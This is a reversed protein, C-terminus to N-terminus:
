RQIGRDLAASQMAKKIRTSFYPRDSWPLYPDEQDFQTVFSSQLRGREDAAHRFQEALNSAPHDVSSIPKSIAYRVTGDASAIVTTGAWQEVGGLDEKAPEVLQTFQAVLDMQLQGHASVRFAPHFGQLDIGRPWDPHFGLAPANQAAYERLSWALEDSIEKVKWPRGRAGKKENETNGRSRSYVFPALALPGLLATPFPPLDSAEFVLSKEALSDVRDPYIGRVRFAEIMAGRRGDRDEPALEFDATVMARLYDGFTIDVPPLYEFARICMTLISQAVSSAEAAIRNVLDPHLDGEPLKGTGGTAIRILDATRRQYTTFFAEFVAAVLISGRAHPELVTEYRKPDPAQVATRLANGGGTAYGFQAALEVLPDSHRLDGRTRQIHDRLIEPFSFHQFIAVIDSFGEHFAAVDRNTPQFFHKRLRHVLAHAMEHAIIDHSLCSFVPQGPLNPGPSKRDAFFYGFLLARLDPDFFANQGQFAHPFIHLWFGLRRGLAREFNELVKMAVAYVMQQHFRPDSETPELGGQMLIAPDDLNVPEYFCDKAGDYDIVKIRSGLPGRDLPQENEIDLTIRNLPMRGLM